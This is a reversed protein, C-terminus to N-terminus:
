WKIKNTKRYKLEEKLYEEIKSGKIHKQTKLIAKIHSTELDKIRIQKYQPIPISIEKTIFSSTYKGWTTIERILEFPLPYNEMEDNWTVLNDVVLGKNILLQGFRIDSNRLWEKELWRMFPKIRRIDRM